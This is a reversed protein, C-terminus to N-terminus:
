GMVQLAQMVRFRTMALNSRQKDLVALLFHNRRGPLTRLIHYRLGATTLVEDVTDQSHPSGMMRHATAHAHMVHCAALAARDVDPGHGNAAVVRGDDACVIAAVIVGDLPAIQQVISQASILDMGLSPDPVGSSPHPAPSPALEHPLSGFQTFGTSGAGAAMALGSSGDDDGGVRAGTAGAVAEVGSAIRFFGEDSRTGSSLERARASKRQSMIRRWYALTRNWVMSASLLPECQSRVRVSAPRPMAEVKAAMWVAGQPLMFLLEPCLWGPARVAAALEQLLRDLQPPSLTGVIVVSLDSREMLAWPIDATAPGAQRVNAHYIKLPEDQRRGLRTREIVALSQLTSQDRLHLREIPQASADALAQIVASAWLRDPDFFTILRQRRQQPDSATAFQARMAQAASGTVFLEREHSDVILGSANVEGSNSELMATAAFATDDPKRDSVPRLPHLDGFLSKLM